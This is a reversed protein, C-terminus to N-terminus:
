CIVGSGLLMDNRYLALTQGAAVGFIEENIKFSCKSNQIDMEFKKVINPVQLSRVQCNISGDVNLTSWSTHKDMWYWTNLDVEITDRYFADHDDKRSIILQNREVNKDSVLWVGKYKPDGQPMSIGSKQGITASWLGQHRGWVKGDKTVIDGPNPTIYENLFDKFKGVQSVFCLGQSDPKDKTVLDYEQAIERIQPKTYHGIPMLIKSLVRNPMSALYYSQDKCKYHARFINCEGTTDNHLIRSYHGTVLWWKKNSDRYNDELYEMMKGFKVYKNCGIDPNPTLGREYQELMPEFVQTWYEKEFNVRTCPIKLQRCTEQVQIWDSDVTCASNSDIIKDPSWNAMFVGRVNKYKKSYMLAAVSSDVGSSMSIIIEDEPSPQVQRYGNIPNQTQFFRSDVVPAAVTSFLCLQGHKPYESGLKQTCLRIGLRSVRLM